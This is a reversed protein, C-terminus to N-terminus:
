EPTPPDCKTGALLETFNYEAAPELAADLTAQNDSM